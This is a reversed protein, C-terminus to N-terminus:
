MTNGDDKMRENWKKAAEDINKAGIGVYHEEGDLGKWNSCDIRCGGNWEWARPKAGCFPCPKLNYKM